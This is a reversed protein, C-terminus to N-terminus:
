QEAWVDRLCRAIAEARFPKEIACLVGAELMAEPSVFDGSVLFCRLGPKLRRLAAVTVWGSGKPMQLDVLAAGVEGAHRTLVEVAEVGSAAPFARYGLASVYSCLIPRVHDDDDVDLVCGPEVPSTAENMSCESSVFPLGHWRDPL